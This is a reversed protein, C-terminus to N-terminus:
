LFRNLHSFYRLLNYNGAIEVTRLYALDAVAEKIEGRLNPLLHLLDKHVVKSSIQKTNRIAENVANEVQLLCNPPPAPSEFAVDVSSINQGLEWRATPAQFLNYIIASILHQGSHQQMHDFRIQWDVECDVEMGVEFLTTALDLKVFVEDTNGNPWVDSCKILNM